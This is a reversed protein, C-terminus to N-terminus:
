RNAVVLELVKIANIALGARWNDAAVWFSFGNEVSIDQRLRSIFVENEGQVDLIDAYRGEEPNDLVRLSENNQMVEKIDDVDLEEEVEINVYAANGVFAPVIACNAHVKINSGLINKTEANIVWEAYTEDGIFDEVQPIVNFAIPRPFVKTDNGAHVHASMFVKKTQSYLEDMGIKGFISCATYTSVIMRKITYQKAIDALPLLLQASISSPLSIINKKANKIEADNIGSVILPIGDTGMFSNACDIVMAGKSTANVAYKKTIEKITTFIAVDVGSFDFDEINHVLLEKEEGFSVKKGSLVKVDVAVVDNYNQELINLIERGITEFAGVVAIKSM